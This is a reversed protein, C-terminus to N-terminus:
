WTAHGRSRTVSRRARPEVANRVAAGGAAISTVKKLKTPTADGKYELYQYRASCWARPSPRPPTPSTSARHAATALTTAVSAAKSARRAIAAAARRMGDLTLTTPTASAWSSRPRRRCVHGRDARGADRGAQGRLRGRRPVHRPRRRARRRGRRRRPRARRGQGRPGRPARRRRPRRPHHRRHVLPGRNAGTTDPSPAPPSPHDPHDTRVPRFTGKRGGPSRTSSTPSATSTRCSRAARRALGRPRRRGGPARGAARRRPRRRARRRHPERRPARVGDAARLARHRRRHGARAGDVMAETTLSVGPQSSRATRPRPPWSPGSWSSSASSGSRAPRRAGLRARDRCPRARAAVGGRRGRRLRRARVLGQRGTRRVATRHQRRRGQAHLDESGDADSDVVPRHQLWTPLPPDPAPPTRYGQVIDATGSGDRACGASRVRLRATGRRQLGDDAGRAGLLPRLVHQHERRRRAAPTSSWRSASSCVSTANTPKQRAALPVYKRFSALSASASRKCGVLRSRGIAAPSRSTRVARTM